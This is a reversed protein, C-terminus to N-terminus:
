NIVQNGTVSAAVIRRVIKDLGASGAVGRAAVLAHELPQPEFLFIVEMAQHSSFVQLLQESHMFLNLRDIDACIM